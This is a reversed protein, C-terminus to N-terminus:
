NGRCISLNLVGREIAKFAEEIERGTLYLTITIHNDYFSDAFTEENVTGLLFNGTDSSNEQYAEKSNGNILIVEKESLVTESYLGGSEQDYYTSILDIKDGENLLSRDGYFSVPISAARLGEPIHFSFSYSFNSGGSKEELKDKTIIEGKLIDAIAKEGTIEDKNIIFRGSFINAPIKQMEILDAAIREGKKIDNRAIFIQNYNVNEPIQEKLSSIYLFIFFGGALSIIIFIIGLIRQRIILSIRNM